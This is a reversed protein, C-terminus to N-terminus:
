QNCNESQLLGRRFRHSADMMKTQHFYQPVSKKSDWTPAWCNKLFKQPKAPFSVLPQFQIRPFLFDSLALEPM